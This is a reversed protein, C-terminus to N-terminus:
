LLSNYVEEVNFDPSGQRSYYNSYRAIVDKLFPTSITAIRTIKHKEILSNVRTLNYTKKDQFDIFGADIINTKPIFHFRPIKNNIHDKLKSEKGKSMPRKDFESDLSEWKKIMVFLINEIKGQGFDCAPNLVIHTNGLIKVIDGTFLKPKIPPTIYFESPTYFEFAELNEKLDLHEQIHSLTYRLLAKEKQESDRSKDIIWSEMSNSLHDWFIKNLYNEIRGSKGLIKTIGTNYIDVLQQLHDHEEGRTKIKFLSSEKKLDEAIDQPTGTIVFVPFRLNSKIVRIVENGSFDDDAKEASDLKLDVIAADFYLDKNNLISFADEKTSVQSHIIKIESLLNFSVVDREYATILEPDDEVILLKLEAM